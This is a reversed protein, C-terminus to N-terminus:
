SFDPLGSLSEDALGCVLSSRDSRLSLLLLLLLLSWLLSLWPLLLLLSTLASIEEESEPRVLLLEETEPVGADL